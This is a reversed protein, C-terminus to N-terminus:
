RSYLWYSRRGYRTIHLAFCWSCQSRYWQKRSKVMRTMCNTFLTCVTSNDLDDPDLEPWIQALMLVARHSGDDWRGCNYVLVAVCSESDTSEFRGFQLITLVDGDHLPAIRTRRLSYARRARGQKWCRRLTKTFIQSARGAPSVCAATRQGHGWRRAEAEPRTPPVGQVELRACRRLARSLLPLILPLPPPCRPACPRTQAPLHTARRLAPCKIQSYPVTLM